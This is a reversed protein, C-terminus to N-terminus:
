RNGVQGTPSRTGASSAGAAAPSGGTATTAVTIATLSPYFVTVNETTSFDAVRFQYTHTGPSAVFVWSREVVYQVTDAQDQYYGVSSVTTGDTVDTNIYCGSCNGGVTAEGHVFVLQNVFGPVTISVQAVPIFAGNAGTPTSLPTSAFAARPDRNIFTNGSIGDLRDANLNTAKGASGNVVIPAKGAPVSISLGKSGSNTNTNKIALMAGNNSGSLTTLYGSISNVVGLKFTAGPGVALATGGMVFVLILAGVATARRRMAFRAIGSRM